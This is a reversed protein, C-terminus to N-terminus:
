ENKISVPIIIEAGSKNGSIKISTSITSASSPDSYISFLDSIGAHLKLNISTKVSASEITNSLSTYYAIKTRPDLYYYSLGSLKMFRYPLSVNFSTDALEIPIAMNQQVSLKVSVNTVTTTSTKLVATEGIEEGNLTIKELTISPLYVLLPNSLSLLKHKLAFPEGATQAEFVPTNKEIKEKGVTRGFKKIITYDVEDDALAFQTINFSGNNAALFARGTNTLVADIIINNTSHDLFGM